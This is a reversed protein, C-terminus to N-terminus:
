AHWNSFDSHNQRLQQKLPRMPLRLDRAVKLTQTTQLCTEPFGLLREHAGLAGIEFTHFQQTSQPGNLQVL